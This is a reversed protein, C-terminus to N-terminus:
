GSLKSQPQRWSDMAWTDSKFGYRDDDDDDDDHSHLRRISRRWRM